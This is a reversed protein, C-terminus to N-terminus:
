QPDCIILPPMNGPVPEGELGYDISRISGFPLYFPAGFLKRSDLAPLVQVHKTLRVKLFIADMGGQPAEENPFTWPRFCLLSIKENTAHEPDNRADCSGPRFLQDTPQLRDFSLPRDHPPDQEEAIGRLIV